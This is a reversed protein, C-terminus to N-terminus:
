IAACQQCATSTYQCRLGYYPFPCVCYSEQCFGGNQCSCQVDCDIGWWGEPCDCVGTSPNCLNGGFGGCDREGCKDVSSTQLELTNLNYETAITNTVNSLSEEIAAIDEFVSPDVPEDTPNEEVITYTIVLQGGTATIDVDQPDLGPVATSLAAIFDPDDFSDAAQITAFTEEDVEYVISVTYTGAAQLSRFGDLRRTGKDLTVTCLDAADGCRVQKIGALVTAEDNNDFLKRDLTATDTAGVFTTINKTTGVQQKLRTITDKAVETRKTSNTFSLTQSIQGVSKSNAIYKKVELECAATTSCSSAKVDKCFGDKSCYPLRGTNFEGQCDQWTTCPTPGYCGENRCYQNTGTCDASVICAPAPTPASTPAPTPATPVDYQALKGMRTWTSYTGIYPIGSYLRNRSIDYHVSSGLGGAEGPFGSVFDGQLVYEQTDGAFNYAYVKGDGGNANPAGIFVRSLDDNIHASWGFKENAVPGYYPGKWYSFRDNGYADSQDNNYVYFAGRTEAGVKAGTAIVLLKSGDPTIKVVAGFGNNVAVNTDGDPAWFRQAVRGLGTSTVYRMVMVYGGYKYNGNNGGFDWLPYELGNDQETNGPAGGVVVYDTSPSQVSKGIDVSTGM